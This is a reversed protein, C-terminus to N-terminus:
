EAGDVGAALSQAVVGICAPLRGFAGRTSCGHLLDGRHQMLVARVPRRAPGFLAMLAGPSGEDSGSGAIVAREGHRGSLQDACQDGSCCNMPRSLTQEVGGGCSPLAATSYGAVARTIAQADGAWRFDSTVVNCAQTM